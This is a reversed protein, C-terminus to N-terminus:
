GLGSLGSSELAPRARHLREPRGTNVAPTTPAAATAAVITMTKATTSVGAPGSEAETGKAVSVLMTVPNASGGATASM